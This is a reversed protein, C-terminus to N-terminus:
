VAQSPYAKSGGHPISIQKTRIFDVLWSMKGHIVTGNTTTDANAETGQVTTGLTLGTRLRCYFRMFLGPPADNHAVSSSATWDTIDLQAPPCTRIVQPIDDSIIFWPSSSEESSSDGAHEGPRQQYADPFLSPLSMSIDISRKIPKDGADKVGPIIKMRYMSKSIDSAPNGTEAIEEFEVGHPVITYFVELPFRSYNQFTFTHNIALVRGFMTADDGPGLSSIADMTKIDNYMDLPCNAYDLGVVCNEVLGALMYAPTTIDIGRGIASYAPTRAPATVEAWRREYPNMAQRNTGTPVVFPILDNASSSFYTNTNYWKKERPYDHDSMWRPQLSEGLMMNNNLEM